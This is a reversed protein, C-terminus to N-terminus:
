TSYIHILHEFANAKRWDDDGKFTTRCILLIFWHLGTGKDYGIKRKLDENKIIPEHSQLELHKKKESGQNQRKSSELSEDQM